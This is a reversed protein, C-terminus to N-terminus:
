KVYKKAKKIDFKRIADNICDIYGISYFVIAIIIYGIM